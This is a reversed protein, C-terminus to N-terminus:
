HNLEGSPWPGFNGTGALAASANSNPRCTGRVERHRLWFELLLITRLQPQNCELGTMFCQLRHRIAPGKVYGLKALRFHHPDRLIEAALPRLAMAFVLNFAAKSRRNLVVPPILDRSARRMLRRPEGVGCIVSSPAALMFEVLPRHSFPHTYFLHQFPEPTQLVRDELVASIARFLKRKGGPARKWVASDAQAREASAALDRVWPQLSDDWSQRHSNMSGCLNETSALSFKLQFARWLISYIPIHLYGSWAMAESFTRCLSGPRLFDAVQDSDDFWNGTVLDGLQGTLLVRSGAADLRRAIEMHRPAWFLPHSDGPCSADVFLYDSTELHMGSQGCANEVARYYQEDQSAPDHYSITLLRSCETRGSAILRNAMCVVSSSDLGGSMDAHVPGSARLRVRVAEEFLARYCEEYEGDSRLRITNDPRLRWFVRKGSHRACFTRAHAPEVARINSYPTRCGSAGRTLQEAVYQDDLRDDGSWEVLHRQSSSWALLHSSRRCYYLPRVGAYDSALLLRRSTAEWIAASWDGVLEGLADERGAEYMLLAIAADTPDGELRPGVRGLLADTNDLRGDWAIANGSRSIHPQREKASIKDFAAGGHVMLLGPARYISVPGFKPPLERLFVAQTEQSIESHADFLGAIM